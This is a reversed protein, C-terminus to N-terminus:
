MSMSLTKKEQKSSKRPKSKPKRCYKGNPTKFIKCPEKCEVVPTKKCKEAVTMPKAKPAPKANPASKAKLVPKVKPEVKNAKVYKNFEVRIPQCKKSPRGRAELCKKYERLKAVPVSDLFELKSKTSM